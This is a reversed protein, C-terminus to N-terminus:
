AVGTRRGDRASAASARQSKECAGDAGARLTKALKRSQASATRRPLRKNRAEMLPGAADLVAAHLPHNQACRCPQIVSHSNSDFVRPELRFVGCPVEDYGRVAALACLMMRGKKHGM